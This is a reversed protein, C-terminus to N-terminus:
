GYCLSSFGATRLCGFCCTPLMQHLGLQKGTLSLRTFTGRSEDPQKMGPENSDVTLPSFSCLVAGVRFSHSGSVLTQIAWSRAEETRKRAEDQLQVPM